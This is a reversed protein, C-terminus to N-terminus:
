SLPLAATAVAPVVSAVCRAFEFPEGLPCGAVAAVVVPNPDDGVVDVAFWRELVKVFADEALVGPIEGAIPSEFLVSYLGIVAIDRRPTAPANVLAVELCV